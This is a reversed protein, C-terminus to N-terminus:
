LFQQCCQIIGKFTRRYILSTETQLFTGSLKAAEKSISNQLIPVEKLYEEAWNSSDQSVISTTTSYTVPKSLNLDRSSTASSTLKLKSNEFEQSWQNARCIIFHRIIHHLMCHKLDLQEFASFNYSLFQLMTHKKIQIDQQNAWKQCHNVDHSRFQM